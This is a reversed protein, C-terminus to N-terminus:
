DARENIGCLHLPNPDRINGMLCFSTYHTTQRPDFQDRYAICGEILITTYKPNIGAVYFAGSTTYTHTQQPFISDGAISSTTFAGGCAKKKAEEFESADPLTRVFPYITQGVNLAPSPGFNKATFTFSGSVSDDEVKDITLTAGEDNAVWPRQSRMLTEKATGNSKVSFLALIGTLVTYVILFIMTCCAACYAKKELRYRSRDLRYQKANYSYKQKAASEITVKLPEANDAARRSRSRREGSHQAKGPNLLSDDM